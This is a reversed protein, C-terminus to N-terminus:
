RRKVKNIFDRIKQCDKVGRSSEVGSSVDIADPSTIEMAKDINRLNLGGSLMWPRSFTKGKLLNWDFSKGSGGPLDGDPTKTDFLLWDCVDEYDQVISIDDKTKLSIAKIVPLGFKSKISNVRRSTEMGHLQVMDIDIENIVQELLKDDPNVFLGVKSVKSVLRNPVGRCINAAQAATVHRPSPPYFVFGIFDAGSELVASMAEHESIGCIKVKIDKIDTM